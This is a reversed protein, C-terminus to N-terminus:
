QFEKRVEDNLVKFESSIKAFLAEKEAANNHEYNQAIDCLYYLKEAGIYSCSGKLRHAAQRWRSKEVDEFSSNMTDIDVKAKKFFLDLLQQTEEEAETYQKLVEINFSKM